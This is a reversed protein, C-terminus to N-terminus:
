VMPSPQRTAELPSDEPRARPVSGAEVGLGAPNPAEPVDGAGAPVGVIAQQPPPVAIPRLRLDSVPVWAGATVDVTEVGDLDRVSSDPGRLADVIDM